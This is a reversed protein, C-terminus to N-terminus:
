TQLTGQVKDQLYLVTGALGCGREDFERSELGKYM